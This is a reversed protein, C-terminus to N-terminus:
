NCSVTGGAACIASASGSSLMSGADENFTTATLDAGSSRFMLSTNHGGTVDLIDNGLATVLQQIAPDNLAGQSQAEQFLHIFLGAEDGSVPFGGLTTGSTEVWQPNTSTHTVQTVTGLTGLDFLHSSVNLASSIGGFIDFSGANVHTGGAYNFTGGSPYTTSGGAILSQDYTEAMQQFESLRHGQNALAKLLNIQTADLEGAAELGHIIQELNALLVNTTGNGGATEVANALNSPYNALNIVTGGATTVTIGTTSVGPPFSASAVTGGSSSSSGGGSTTTASAGGGGGFIRDLLGPLTASFDNAFFSLAGISVVAILSALLFYEGLSQGYERRM